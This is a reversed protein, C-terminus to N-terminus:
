LSYSQPRGFKSNKASLEYSRGCATKELLEEWAIDYNWNKRYDSALNNKLWIVFEKKDGKGYQERWKTGDFFPFTFEGDEYVGCHNEIANLLTDHLYQPLFYIDGNLHDDYADPQAYYAGGHTTSNAFSKIMCIESLVGGYAAVLKEGNEGPKDGYFSDGREPLYIWDYQGGNYNTPVLDREKIEEDTLYLCALGWDEDGDGTFGYDIIIRM